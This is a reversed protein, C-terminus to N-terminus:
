AGSEEFIVPDSAERVQDRRGAAILRYAKAYNRAVHSIEFHDRIRTRMAAGLDRRVEPDEVLRILKQALGQRDGPAILWERGAAGVQMPTGGVSTSVIPLGAAMAELVANSNGEITSTLVFVDMDELRDRVGTVHGRFHVSHGIGLEVALSRLFEESPGSGWIELEVRNRVSDLVQKWAHLLDDVRKEPSLRGVFVVRCTRDAGRGSPRTSDPIRIRIGNPTALIRGAPYGVAALEGISELSMAVVADVLGFIALKARGLRSKAVGPLSHAGISPLKMVVPKGLVRATVIIFVGFWSFQHLHVIDYTARSVVLHRSLHLASLAFRAIRRASWPVRHVPIGEVDENSGQGEAFRYSVVQVGIGLATLAKSLEHSQRELGGMIPLPYYPVAM